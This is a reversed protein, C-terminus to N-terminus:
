NTIFLPHETTGYQEKIIYFDDENDIIVFTNGWANYVNPYEENFDVEFESWYFNTNDSDQIEKWFEDLSQNYKTKIYETLRDEGTIGNIKQDSVYVGDLYWGSSMGKRTIDCKKPYVEFRVQMTKM